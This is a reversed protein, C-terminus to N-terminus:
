KINVGCATAAPNMGKDSRYLSYTRRDAVTKQLEYLIDEPHKTMERRECKKIGAM